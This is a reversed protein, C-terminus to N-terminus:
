ATEGCGDICFRAQEYEGHSDGQTRRLRYQSSSRVVQTLRALRAERDIGTFEAIVASELLSRARPISGGRNANQATCKAGRNAVSLHTLPQFWRNALGDYPRLARGLTRIGREGGSKGRWRRTEGEIQTTFPCM